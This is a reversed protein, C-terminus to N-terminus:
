SQNLSLEARIVREVEDPDQMPIFHTLEPYHQERCDRFEGVLGPWTPSFAFRMNGAGTGDPEQARMIFVPVDLDRVSSYIKTNSGSSIYVSAEMEPACALQFSGDAQEILGFRCYDSYARPTYHAFSGKGALAEMMGEPSAFERRRRASPANEPAYAPRNAAEETYSDPNFVTPDILLLRDCAHTEAATMILTHAGM